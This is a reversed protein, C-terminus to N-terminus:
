NPPNGRRVVDPMCKKMLENDFSSSWVLPDHNDPGPLGQIDGTIKFAARGLDEDSDGYGNRSLQHFTEHFATAM